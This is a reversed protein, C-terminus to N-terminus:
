AVVWPVLAMLLVFAVGLLALGATGLREPWDYRGMRDALIGAGICGYGAIISLLAAAFMLEQPTYSM